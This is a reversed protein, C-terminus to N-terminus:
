KFLEQFLPLQSIETGNRYGNWANRKKKMSVFTKKKQVWSFNQKLDHRCTRAEPKFAGEDSFLQPHRVPTPRLSARVRGARDKRRKVQKTGQSGNREKSDQGFM